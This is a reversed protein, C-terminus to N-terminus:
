FAWLLSTYGTAAHYNQLGSYLGFDERYGYYQFGANWKIKATVPITLRLMPTQFSLPFTQVNYLLADVTGVPRLSARGDGTDRTINYGAYVDAKKFALRVGLNAAHINSVYVSIGETLRARPAGAFFAIGGASDNHLRSYGADLSAWARAAWSFNAFYNRAHASYSALSISNNNYNQRYGASATVTRKRDQLRGDLTHYNRESVPYFPNDNRGFEAELHLKLASQLTWNLGAVGAHVTNQQTTLVNSFPTSADTASQISKIERNSYRYSGFFDLKPTVRLHADTANVARRLGLYQFNYTTFNFALLDIQQYVSNGVMRRDDFSTNNTITLRSTAFYALNLDGTTVPRSANGSTNVIRTVIGSLGNGSANEQQIFNRRGASNTFRANAAFRKRETSLTVLWSPSSGHIPSARNFGALTSGDATNLGAQPQLISYPTDEKYFEWTRLFTLRFGLADIDAGTRYSNFERKVNSFLTFIDGRQNEFLNITSLSPGDEKHRSWGGRFKFKGQPFFVLEHDQWRQQLNALHLGGATALGPNFYDNLRWQMDYRYLRNKQVRLMASEYPDNGLGMTTLVIEDFYRGHGDRLNVALSSNLLRIGNRFNVDSRYKGIDGGALSYRYGTEWQQMVNYNGHNVGRPPGVTEATTPAVTDQADALGPLALGFVLIFLLKRM